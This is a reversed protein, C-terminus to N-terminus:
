IKKSERHPKQKNGVTQSFVTRILSAKFKAFRSSQALIKNQLKIYKGV